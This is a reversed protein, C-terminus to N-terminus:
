EVWRSRVPTETPRHADPGRRPLTAAARCVDSASNWPPRYPLRPIRLNCLRVPVRLQVQLLSRRPRHSATSAAETCLGSTGCEDRPSSATDTEALLDPRLTRSRLDMRM